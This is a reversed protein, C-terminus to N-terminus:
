DEKNRGGHNVLSFGGLHVLGEGQAELIVGRVTGHIMLGPLRCYVRAQSSQKVPLSECFCVFHSGDTHTHSLSHTNATTHLGCWVHYLFVRHFRNEEEM